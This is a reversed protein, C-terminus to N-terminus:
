TAEGPATAHERVLLQRLGYALTRSMRAGTEAAFGPEAAYEIAAADCLRALRECGDRLKTNEGQTMALSVKLRENEDLAAGYHGEVEGLRGRLGENEGHLRVSEDLLRNHREAQSTAHEREVDAALTFQGKEETWSEALDEFNACTKAHAAQEDALVETLRHVEAANAECLERESSLERELEEYAGTLIALKERNSEAVARAQDRQHGLLRIEGALGEGETDDGLLEAVAVIAAHFADEIIRARDLRIANETAKTRLQEVEAILDPVDRAFFERVSLPLWGQGNLQRASEDLWEKTRKAKARFRDLDTTVVEGGAHRPM